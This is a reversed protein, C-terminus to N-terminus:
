STVRAEHEVPAHVARTSTMLAWLTLVAMLGDSAAFLLFSQPSQRLYHDLLFAIAGAGKLLPGMVWMYARGGTSEPERYPIAYGAAVAVLFVGNLDAHIPPTPLPVGFLSALLPRGALMMVAISGDYFASVAAVTRLRM